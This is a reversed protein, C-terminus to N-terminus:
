RTVGAVLRGTWVRGLLLFVVGILLCAGSAPTAAYLRLPDVGFALALLVGGVPLTALLRATARPGALVVSLRGSRDLEARVLRAATELAEAVPVGVRDSLQWAQAVLALAGAGLEAEVAGWDPIGHVDLSRGLTTGVGSRPGLEAAAVALARHPPLGALVGARVLDLLGLV